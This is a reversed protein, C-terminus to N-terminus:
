SRLAGSAPRRTMLLTSWLSLEFSKVEPEGLM